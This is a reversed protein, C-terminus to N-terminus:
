GWGESAGTGRLQCREAAGHLAASGGRLEAHPFREDLQWRGDKSPVRPTEPTSLHGLVYSKLM